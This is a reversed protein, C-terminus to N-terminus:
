MQYTFPLLLRVMDRWASLAANRVGSIEERYGFHLSWIMDEDWLLFRRTLGGLCRQGHRLPVASFLFKSDLTRPKRFGIWTLGVQEM